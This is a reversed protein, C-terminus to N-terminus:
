EIKLTLSGANRIINDPSKIKIDDFYIKDEKELKEIEAKMTETLKNSSSYITNTDVFISFSSVNVGYKSFAITDLDRLKEKEIVGHRAGKIVIRPENNIKDIEQKYNIKQIKKEQKVKFIMQMYEIVKWTQVVCGTAETFKTTDNIHNDLIALQLKIDINNRVLGLFMYARIIGNSDEILNLLKDNSCINMLSYYTKKTEDDWFVRGSHEKQETEIDKKFLKFLSDIKDSQGFCNQGIVLLILIFYNKM